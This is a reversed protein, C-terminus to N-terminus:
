LWWRRWSCSCASSCIAASRASCSTSSSEYREARLPRRSRQRLSRDGVFLSAFLAIFRALRQKTLGLVLCLVIDAGVLGQEAPTSSARSRLPGVVGVVLCLVGGAGGLGWGAPLSPSSKGQEASAGGTPLSVSSM